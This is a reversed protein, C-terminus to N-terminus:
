SACSTRRRRTSSRASCRSAAASATSPTSARPSPSTADAAAHAAGLDLLWDAQARRAAGDSFHLEADALKGPPNGKDNPTIRVTMAASRRTLREYRAAPRRRVHDPLILRLAAPLVISRTRLEPSRALRVSPRDVRCDSPPALRDPSLAPQRAHCGSAKASGFCKARRLVRSVAARAVRGPDAGPRARAQRFAHDDAAVFPRRDRAVAARRRRSVATAAARWQRIVEVDRWLVGQSHGTGLAKM